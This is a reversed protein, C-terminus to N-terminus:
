SERIGGSFGCGKKEVWRVVKKRKDLGAYKMEHEDTAGDDM